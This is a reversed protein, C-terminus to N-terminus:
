QIYIMHFLLKKPFVKSFNGSFKVKNRAATATKEGVAVAIRERQPRDRRPGGLLFNQVPNEGEINSEDSEISLSYAPPPFPPSLLWSPPVFPADDNDDDDNNDNNDNNHNFQKLRELKEAIQLDKISPANELQKQM